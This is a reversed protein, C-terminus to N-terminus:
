PFYVFIPNSYLWLDAWAEAAGDLGLYTTALSDALPNGDEDTEYPTNPAQNTARLRFYVGQAEPTLALSEPERIVLTAIHNGQRDVRWNQPSLREIVRATPNTPDQYAPDSPDIPGTIDGAILDIHDVTPHDGQNNFLPSTFAIKIVLSRNGRDSLVLDSGMPAVVGGSSAQFELSDVLDGMVHYSNGSRLSEAIENLSISRDQDSDVVYSYNKQYEGPYFDSGGVSTHAHYDSSAFNFWHRGEGLLADWLGGVEATYLGTGGYTGGGYAGSGFGGRHSDAQHGPAGEFGFCVDPGANNFDRFDSVGYAGRKATGKREIHAFVIWADDVLGEDYLGQMWACAAVADAHSSNQKALTGYPTSEGDRSTDADSQDFMYEFASVAEADEAVIGVSCHEHYPVNWEVGSAIRQHPLLSRWRLIDGFAFDRLSQWRWMLRHAVGDATGYAVDGLIEDDSLYSDWFRNFGDQIRAGGHESNAWWDLGFQYNKGMVFDFDTRGDTYFTHQHFDGALWAGAPGRGSNGASVCWDAESAGSNVKSHAPSAAVWTMLLLLSTAAALLGNRLVSHGLKNM